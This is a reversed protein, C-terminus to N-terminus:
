EQDAENWDKRGGWTNTSSAVRPPHSFKDYKARSFAGEPTSAFVRGAGGSKRGIYIIGDYTVVIKDEKMKEEGKETAEQLIPM